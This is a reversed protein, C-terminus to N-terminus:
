PRMRLQPDPPSLRSWPTVRRIPGSLNRSRHHMESLFPSPDHRPGEIPSGKLLMSGATKPLIGALLKLLTSKGSGSPGVITVFEGEAVSFNIDRLAEVPRGRSPYRKALGQVRILHRDLTAALASM